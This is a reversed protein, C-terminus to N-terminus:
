HRVRGTQQAPPWLWGGSSLHTATMRPTQRANRGRYFHSTQLNHKYKIAIGKPPQIAIQNQQLSGRLTYRQRQICENFMKVSWLHHVLQM